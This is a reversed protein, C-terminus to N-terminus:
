GYTVARYVKEWAPNRELVTVIAREKTLKGDKQILEKALDEIVKVINESARVRKEFAEGEEVTEPLNQFAHYLSDWAPNTVQDYIAREKTKAFDSKSIDRGRLEDLEKLVDKQSKLDGVKIAADIEGISKYMIKERRKMTNLIEFIKKGTDSELILKSAELQGIGKQRAFDKIAKILENELKVRLNSHQTKEVDNRKFFMVRSGENAASTVLSVETIELDKLLRTKRDGLKM